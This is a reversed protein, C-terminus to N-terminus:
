TGSKIKTWLRTLTRKEKPGFPTVTYTNELTAEDPYIARIVDNELKVNIGCFNVCHCCTSKVYRTKVEATGKGVRGGKSGKTMAASDSAEANGAVPVGTSAIMGLSGLGQLM